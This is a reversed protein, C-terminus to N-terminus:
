VSALSSPPILAPARLPAVVAAAITFPPLAARGPVEMTHLMEEVVAMIGGAAAPAEWLFSSRGGGGGGGFGGVQGNRGGGGLYSSTTNGVSAGGGGGGGGNRAGGGGINAGDGGTGFGGPSGPPLNKSLNGNGDSSIGGQAFATANGGFGGSNGSSGNALEGVANGGDKRNDIDSASGGGGGAAFLLSGNNSFVFTAGGGGGVADDGNDVQGRQGVIIYISEGKALTVGSGHIIVGVGGLGDATNAGAAGVVTFNYVGCQPVTWIQIGQVSMNLFRTDQTWAQMKHSVDDQLAALTPGFQGTANAPTFTFNSFSYLPTLGAFVVHGRKTQTLSTGKPVFSLMPVVLLVLM